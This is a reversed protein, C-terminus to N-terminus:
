GSSCGARNLGLWTGGAAEDRGALFPVPGETWLLPSRAARDLREDRNAAVVLPAEPHQRLAVILTCM